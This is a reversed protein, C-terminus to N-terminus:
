IWRTLLKISFDFFEKFPITEYIKMFALIFIAIYWKNKRLWTLFSMGKELETVRGNTKKAQDLIDDTKKELSKLNIDVVEFGATLQVRLGEVATKIQEHEKVNQIDKFMDSNLETMILIKKLEHKIQNLRKLRKKRLYESYYYDFICYAVFLGAVIIYKKEWFINIIDFFLVNIDAVM